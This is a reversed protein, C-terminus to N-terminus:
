RPDIREIWAKIGAWDLVPLSPLARRFDAFRAAELGSAGSAIVAGPHRPRAIGVGHDIAAIAFDIDESAALDVAVKWVDGTWESQIRPVHEEEWTRPLMDHILVWGGPRTAAIAAAVDRRTQAYDHLGDIFSLDFRRDNGSFFADSTMRTTGGRAPDVGTKDDVPVSDFLLNRDCGIELYVADPIRRLLHNVLAIRNFPTAAWDWDCDEVDGNTGAAAHKRYRAQQRRLAAADFRRAVHRLARAPLTELTPTM